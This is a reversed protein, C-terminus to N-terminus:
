DDEAFVRFVRVLWGAGYFLVYVAAGLGLFQAVVGLHLDLISM